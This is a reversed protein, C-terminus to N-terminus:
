KASERLKDTSTDSLAVALDRLRDWQIDTLNGCREAVDILTELGYPASLKIEPLSDIRYRFLEQSERIKKYRKDAQNCIRQAWIDFDKEYDDLAKQSKELNVKITTLGDEEIAEIEQLTAGPIARVTKAMADLLDGLEYKTM